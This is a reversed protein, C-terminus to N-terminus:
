VDILEYTRRGLGIEEGYDLQVSWDIQPYIDRFRDEGGSNVLDVSVQDIAVPDNSALIGIDEAIPPRDHGFCDCVPTIKLLFNMFLYKGEKGKLTGLGYEAMKKQVRATSENWQVHIVGEPCVVICQSCGSCVEPRILARGDSLEIARFACNEICVGCATCKERNVRPSGTSHQSLKGERSACGMGINKISGGFGTLEHAKFHTLVILGDAAAVEFGVKVTKYFNRDVVIERCSEGRLGDAIVVPAGMEDFGFGHEAAIAIHSPTVCRWGRYLTNTDTLFPVVGKAKSWEVVKRVYRPEIFSKNGKEGFHLKIATLDNSSIGDPWVRELLTDIASLLDNEERARAIYVKSKM